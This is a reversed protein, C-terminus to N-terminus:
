DGSYVYKLTADPNPYPDNMAKGWAVKIQEDLENNLEDVQEQNYKEIQQQAEKAKQVLLQVTNITSNNNNM